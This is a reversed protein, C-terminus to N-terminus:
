FFTRHEGTQDDVPLRNRLPGLLILGRVRVGAVYLAPFMPIIRCSGLHRGEAAMMDPGITESHILVDGATWEEHTLWSEHGCEWIGWTHRKRLFLPRLEGKQKEREAATRTKLITDFSWHAYQHSMSTQFIQKEWESHLCNVLYLFCEFLDPPFVLYESLPKNVLVDWLSM